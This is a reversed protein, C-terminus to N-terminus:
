ATGHEHGAFASLVTVAVLASLVAPRSTVVGGLLGALLLWPLGVALWFSVARLRDRVGTVCRAVAHSVALSDGSRRRSPALESVVGLRSVSQRVARLPTNLTSLILQSTSPADSSRKM